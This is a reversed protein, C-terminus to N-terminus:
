LSFLITINNLQVFLYVSTNKLSFCKTFLLDDDLKNQKETQRAKCIRVFQCFHLLSVVVGVKSWRALKCSIIQQEKSSIKKYMKFSYKESLSPYRTVLFAWCPKYKRMIYIDISITLYIGPMLLDHGPLAIVLIDMKINEKNM